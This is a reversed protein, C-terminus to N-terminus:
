LSNIHSLVGEMENGSLMSCRAMGMWFEREYDKQLQRFEQMIREYKEWRMYRPRPIHWLDQIPMDPYDRLWWTYGLEKEAIREMKHRMEDM